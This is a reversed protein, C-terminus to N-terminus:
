TASSWSPPLADPAGIPAPAVRNFHADAMDHIAIADTLCAHAEQITPKHIGHVVKHRVAKYAGFFGNMKEVFPESKFAEDLVSDRLGRMAGVRFLDRARLTSGERIYEAYPHALADSVAQGLENRYWDIARYARLWALLTPNMWRTRTTSVANVAEDLATKAFGLETHFDTAISHHQREVADVLSRTREVDFAARYLEYDYDDDIHRLALEEEYLDKMGGM